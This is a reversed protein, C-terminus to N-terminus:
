VGFQTLHHDLHKYFLNNWEKATLKGFSHSEKDEFYNAGLKQCQNLYAILKNKEIEFNRTDPIIYEPATKLNKKYPIDNVVYKKVFFRLLIKIFFNPKKYTNEFFMDFTVNCHALMKDVSMKGWIQQSEPNLKNIRNILEETTQPHFFDKM